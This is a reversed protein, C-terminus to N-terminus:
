SRRTIATRTQVHINSHLDCISQHLSQWSHVFNPLVHWLMPQRIWGQWKEPQNHASPRMWRQSGPKTEDTSYEALYRQLAQHIPKQLLVLLHINELVRM